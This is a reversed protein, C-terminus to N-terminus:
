RSPSTEFEDLIYVHLQQRGDYECIFIFTPPCIKYLIRFFSKNLIHIFWQRLFQSM